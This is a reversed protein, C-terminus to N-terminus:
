IKLPLPKLATRFPTDCVKEWLKAEVLLNFKLEAERHKNEM